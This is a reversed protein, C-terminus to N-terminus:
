FVSVRGSCLSHPYGAPEHNMQVGRLSCVLNALVPWAGLLVTGASTFKVVANSLWGGIIESIFGSSSRLLWPELDPARAVDETGSDNYM